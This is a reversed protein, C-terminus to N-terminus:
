SSHSRIGGKLRTLYMKGVEKNQSKMKNEHEAQKELISVTEEPSLYSRSIKTSQSPKFDKELAIKLWGSPNHIPRGKKLAESLLKLKSIVKDEGFQSVLTKVQSDPINVDKFGNMFSVVVDDQKNNIYKTKQKVFQKQKLSSMKDVDVNQRGRRKTTTAKQCKSSRSPLKQRTAESPIEQKKWGWASFIYRSGNEKGGKILRLYGCDILEKAIRLWVREGINNEKRVWSTNIIWNPPLSQLYLAMGRAELSMSTNQAFKNPLASFNVFSQSRIESM